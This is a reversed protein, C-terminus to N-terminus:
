NTRRESDRARSELDSVRSSLLSQTAERELERRALTGVQERLHILTDEIREIRMEMRETRQNVTQWIPRTDKFRDEVLTELAALKSGVDETVSELAGLRDKMDRVDALLLRLMEVATLDKTPDESMAGEYSCLCGQFIDGPKPQTTGQNSEL